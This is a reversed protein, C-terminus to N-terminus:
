IIIKCGTQAEVGNFNNYRHSDLEHRYRCETRRGQGHEDEFYGEIGGRHEVVAVDMNWFADVPHETKENHCGVHVSHMMRHDDTLGVSIVAEIQWPPVPKKSCVFVLRVQAVFPHCYSKRLKSIGFPQGEWPENDEGKDSIGARHGNVTM